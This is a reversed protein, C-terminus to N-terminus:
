VLLDPAIAEGLTGDYSPMNGISFNRGMEQRRVTNGEGKTITSREAATAEKSREGV